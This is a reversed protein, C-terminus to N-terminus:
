YRRAAVPRQHGQPPAPSVLVAARVDGREALRQAILGGMSHGVVAPTASTGRSRPQTTSSIESRRRPGPRCGAQKGRARSSEGRIGARRAGRLVRLWMRGCPRRRSIAMCSCCRRARPTRRVTRMGRHPRRYSHNRDHPDSVIRGRRILLVEAARQSNMWGDHRRRGFRRGRHVRIGAM